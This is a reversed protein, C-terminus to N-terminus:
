RANQLTYKRKHEALLSYIIDSCMNGFPYLICRTCIMITNHIYGFPYYASKDIVPVLVTATNSKPYLTCVTIFPLHLSRIRAYLFTELQAGINLNKYPDSSKKQSSFKYWFHRNKAIKPTYAWIKFALVTSNPTLIRVESERGWGFM